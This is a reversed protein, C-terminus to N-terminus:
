ASSPMRSLTADRPSPSTYLLCSPRIMVRNDANSGTLSMHSEVQIHRSMKANKTDKIKRGKAYAKAYEIPSIWTGLFDAGFSVIVTAKDFHYNPIVGDGFSAENAELMASSSVPDYTVVQTNPYKATFAAQAAKTMPSMNTNTIIRIRSGANLKGKVAKDLESWTTKEGGM